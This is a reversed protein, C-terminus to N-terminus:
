KANVSAKNDIVICMTDNDSIMFIVNM